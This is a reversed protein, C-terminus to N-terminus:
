LQGRELPRWTSPEMPGAQRASVELVLHGMLGVGLLVFGALTLAASEVLMAYGVCAFATAAVVSAAGYWRIRRTDWFGTQQKRRGLSQSTWRGSIVQYGFTLCYVTLLAFFAAYIYRSDM